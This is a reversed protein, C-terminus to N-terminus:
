EKFDMFMRSTQAGDNKQYKGSDYFTEEGTLTEFYLQGIDVNPYVRTPKQVTIELTWYGEFGNDGFGATLHVCIGLRGISSRGDIKPVYGTTKTYENTRGIYLEGPMLVLGEEPINITKYPNDKKMDLIDGTYVLLDEHLTINYSNPNVKAPNFPEIVIDGTGILRQIEKGTLM